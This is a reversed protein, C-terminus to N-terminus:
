LTRLELYYKNRSKQLFKDIYVDSNKTFLRFNEGDRSLSDRFQNTRSRGAKKNSLRMFFIFDTEARFSQRRPGLIRGDMIYM